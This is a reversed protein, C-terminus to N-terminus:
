LNLVEPQSTTQPSSSSNNEDKSSSSHHHHKHRHKKHHKKHKDKEYLYYLFVFFYFIGATALAIAPMKKGFSLQLYATFLLAAAEILFTLKVINGVKKELFDLSACILLFLIGALLLLVSLSFKRSEFLKFAVPLLVAGAFFHLIQKFKDNKM